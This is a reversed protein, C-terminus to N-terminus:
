TPSSTTGARISATSGREKAAKSWSRSRATPLPLFQLVTAVTGVAFLDPAGPEEVDADRKAVVLIQKDNATAAQVAKISRQTGVFLPHIGHPYVVMNRLPLVAIGALSRSM